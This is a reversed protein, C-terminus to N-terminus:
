PIALVTRCVRIGLDRVWVRLRQLELAFKRKPTPGKTWPGKKYGLGHVRKLVRRTCSSM